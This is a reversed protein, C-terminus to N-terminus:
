ITSGPAGAQTARTPRAVRSATLRLPSPCGARIGIPKGHIQQRTATSPYSRFAFICCFIVASPFCVLFPRLFFCVLFCFGLLVWEPVCSSDLFCPHSFFCCLVRSRVSSLVVVCLPVRHVPARGSEEVRPHCGERRPVRCSSIKAHPVFIVDFDLFFRQMQGVATREKGPFRFGHGPLARVAFARGPVRSTNPNTTKAATDSELTEIGRNGARLAKKHKKRRSGVGALEGLEVLTRAFSRAPAAGALM